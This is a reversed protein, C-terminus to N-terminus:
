SIITASSRRNRIESANSWTLITSVPTNEGKCISDKKHKHRDQQLGIGVEIFLTMHLPPITSQKQNEIDTNVNGWYEPRM